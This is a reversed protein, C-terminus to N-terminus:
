SGDLETINADGKVSIEFPLVADMIEYGASDAVSIRLLAEDNGNAIMTTKYSAFILTAPKGTPNQYLDSLDPLVTKQPETSCGFVFVVFLLLLRILLKM